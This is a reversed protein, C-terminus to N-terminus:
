QRKEWRWVLGDEPDIIEGAHVFGNRRLAANSANEEPLTHACVLAVGAGAAIDHLEAIMATAYGRREFAPFTMYAIEVVGESDPAAKFACTGVAKAGDRALYSGWPDPRPEAKLFQVTQELMERAAGDDGGFGEALKTALSGIDAEPYLSSLTLTV